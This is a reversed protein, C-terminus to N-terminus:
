LRWRATKKRFSGPIKKYSNNVYDNIKVRVIKASYCLFLISFGRM